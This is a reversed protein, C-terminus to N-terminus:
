ADLSSSEGEEPGPGWCVRGLIWSDLGGSEEEELIVPAELGGDRM